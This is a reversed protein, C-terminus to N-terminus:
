KTFQLTSLIGALWTDLEAYTTVEFLYGNRIFWVERTEGITPSESWFVSARTNEGLVVEVPDKLVRSPIDKAIREPSITDGQYPVAFIQFGFQEGPKQFLITRAGQGEDFEVVSLESPYELSFGIKSHTFTKSNSDKGAIVGESLRTASVLPDESGIPAPRMFTSIWYGALAGCVFAISIYVLVNKM